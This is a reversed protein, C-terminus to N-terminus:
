WVRPHNIKGLPLTSPFHNLHTKLMKLMPFCFDNECEKYFARMSRSQLLTDTIHVLQANTTLTKAYAWSNKISPIFESYQSLMNSCIVDNNSNTSYQAASTEASDQDGSTLIIKRTQHICRKSTHRRHPSHLCQTAPVSCYIGGSEESVM